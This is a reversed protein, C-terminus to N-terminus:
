RFLADGEDAPSYDMGLGWQTELQVAAGNGPKAKKALGELIKRLTRKNEPFPQKSSEVLEEIADKM